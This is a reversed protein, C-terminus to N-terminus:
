PGVGVELQEHQFVGLAARRLMKMVHLREGSPNMQGTLFGHARFSFRDECESYLYICAGVAFGSRGRM